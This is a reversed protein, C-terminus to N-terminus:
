EANFVFNVQRNTWCMVLVKTAEQSDTNWAIVSSGKITHWAPNKALRFYFPKM